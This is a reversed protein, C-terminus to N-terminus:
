VAEGDPEGAVAGDGDHTPPHPQPTLTYRGGHLMANALHSMRPAAQVFLYRLMADSKWRGILQVTNSDINACLLATAGGSRVSRAEIRSPTVGLSPHSRAAQRMTHTILASTVSHWRLNAFYRHLPSTPAAHHLRLHSLRRITAKVPCVLPHSACAHGIKEGRNANKQTTFTLTMYTAHSLASLPCTTHSLLVGNAYLQIDQILFPHPNGGSHCHEGPRMLFYFAIILMDAIAQRAVDSSNHAASAIHEILQVPCPEVRLPPPDAKAFAQSQRRLRIDRHGHVDLRPDPAGLSAFTRGVEALYADVTAGRVPRGDKALRGDRIRQAFVQLLLVRNPTDHLHPDHGLSTCFETWLQWTRNSSTNRHRDLGRRQTDHVLRVDAVFADHQAAPM